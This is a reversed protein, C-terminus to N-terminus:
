AEQIILVVAAVARLCGPWGKSVEDLQKSFYAVARKYPGLRQALIGLAVGHREYSFLWFPKTIDPLGLAPARMLELKLEKFARKAEDTWTLQTQSNKLLEYLPKVTMGLFTRLEKVTTPEPTRCIAEKRDNGLQRQGKSIVFGLYIVEKKLIQVKQLLVRYGSLGLFNLLSVTWEKCEEEKETAILIDDVYQLLTGNGPPREWVELEKALQNGFITPSNKFGQPLVTWTLQTKRGSDPNEWEFAFFNRSEPALTLCFFADKLDLVTFWEYTEKLGTLLTYPNAVVPHLDEVIRNIAWLDIQGTEPLRKKWHGLQKCYVCQDKLLPQNGRNGRLPASVGSRMVGRGENSNSRPPIQGEVTRLAAVTANAITKGMQKEKRSDRNWYVQWATELLRELDRADAGQVKQLKRRIDDVSQGLFLFILQSKGEQSTTDLPTYKRMGEKLRNLFDTPSEKKDQKISWNVSKPVANRIGYAIWERYRVLLNKTGMQNPDWGPSTIPVHNDVTGPLTGALVLAQVQTRVARVVMQKESESFVADLMADVDEWDPDQTKVILEFGKAVREPDDRYNGATVRWNRERERRRSKEGLLVWMEKQIVKGKKLCRQGISCASCCRKLIRNQKNREKEIALVMPDQPALNIGCEKQWEPHNRLTFFMDAYVVEDWKGERWLFLMLQLLTNYKLTGNLPWKEGDELKYLPWWQDCYKILTKKNVSGGPPGGIEKWHALICGLPSKKVIGGSQEGGM